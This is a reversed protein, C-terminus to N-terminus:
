LEEKVEDTTQDPDRTEVLIGPFCESSQPFLQVWVISDSKPAEQSTASPEIHDIPEEPGIPCTLLLSSEFGLLANQVRSGLISQYLVDSGYNLGVKNKEKKRNQTM